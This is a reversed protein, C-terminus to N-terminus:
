TGKDGQRWEVAKIKAFKDSRERERERKEERGKEGLDVLRNITCSTCLCMKRAVLPHSYSPLYAGVAAPVFLFTVCCCKSGGHYTRRARLTDSKHDGTFYRTISIHQM